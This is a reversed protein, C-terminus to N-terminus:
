RQAGPRYRAVYELLTAARHDFTDGDVGGPMDPDVTGINLVCYLHIRAQYRHRVM